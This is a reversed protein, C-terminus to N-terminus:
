YRRLVIVAKAPSLSVEAPRENEAKPPAATPSASSKGYWDVDSLNLRRARPAHRGSREARSLSPNYHDPGLKLGKTNPNRELAPQQMPGFLSNNLTGDHQDDQLDYNLVLNKIRQQEEREAAQQSKM